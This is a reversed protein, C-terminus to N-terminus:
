ACQPAPRGHRRAHKQRHAPGLIAVTVTFAVPESRVVSAALDAAHSACAPEEPFGDVSISCGEYTFIAIKTNQLEIRRHSQLVAGFIEANGATLTIFCRAQGIEIRLEANAPVQFRETPLHEEPMEAAAMASPLM